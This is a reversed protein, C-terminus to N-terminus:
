RISCPVELGLAAPEFGAPRVKNVQSSTVWRLQEPLGNCNGNCNLGVACRRHGRGRGPFSRRSTRTRVSRSGSRATARATGDGRPGARGARAPHVGGHAPADHLRGRARRRGSLARKWQAWDRRPGVPRGTRSLSCWAACRSGTSRRCMSRGCSAPSSGSPMRSRGTRGCRTSWSAPCQSPAGAPGHSRSSWCWVAAPSGNCNGGCGCCRGAVSTSSSGGCGSRKVRGLLGFALAVSWRAGNRRRDAAALMRPRRGRHATASGRPERQALRGPRLRQPGGPRAPAGGEVVPVPDPATAAGDGAGAAESTKVACARLVERRAGADAPGAPPRRARRRWAVQPGTARCRPRGCRGGPWTTSGTCLWLGASQRRSGPAPSAAPTASASWSACRPPSRSERDRGPRAAPRDSRQRSAWRTVYGHWRGDSGKFISSRGNAKRGSTM